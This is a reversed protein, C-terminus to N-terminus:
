RRRDTSCSAPSEPERPIVPLIIRSPTDPAHLVTQSAAIADTETAVRRGTNPNRDFRPYSSSSVQLRVRHGARFLHSTPWLAISIGTTARSGSYARRLIGESVNYSRGDPHVDVLKATFDTSPASTRVFLISEVPGTVELDERLLASTYVLVDARQEVSDQPSVGARPGLVAGGLSPVPERPDYVYRDPPEQVLPPEPVLTGDGGASNANGGSRLYWPTFRTRALPWDHEDRWVHEGMVYIRIPAAPEAPAPAGGLHRDFWDLSPALSRVRYDDPLDADPFRVTRAHSWPGIVLRAAAAVRPDAEARVRSFDRLQTPLFPDFWGAMLLVPARLDRPRDVGDIALWYADRESHSVWDDFFPINGVSRDDAEILPFGAYGRELERASAPHDGRERSRAAWYLATELSFAGGPHFMEYFDSSAIQIMLATPGPEAQDALVWQTYGFYSGGWMGLRGDFWRQRALWRLTAIGDAREHRLPYFDGGSRYTGRTGQIVAAYGRSAWLRGVYEAFLRNTFTDPLPIRVLITPLTSVGRPRYVDARLDVGDPTTLTVGREVDVAHEAPRLGGLPVFYSVAGAGLACGTLAAVWAALAARAARM